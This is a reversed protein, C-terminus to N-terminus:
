RQSRQLAQNAQPIQRPLASRFRRRRTRRGARRPLPALADPRAQRRAPGPINHAPQIARRQQVAPPRLRLNLALDASDAGFNNPRRWTTLCRTKIGGNPPEFGEAGAVRRLDTEVASSNQLPDNWWPPTRPCRWDAARAPCRADGSPAARDRERTLRKLSPSISPRAAPSRARGRRTEDHLRRRRRRVIVQHLQQHHRVRAPTSRGRADGRHNRIEAIRALIAPRARHAHRDRRLQHRVHNRARADIAQQRDIQVGVLDLSEEIDRHVVHIRRRHQEAIHPLLLISSRITTDGSTPPTTRALASAFRRSSASSAIM